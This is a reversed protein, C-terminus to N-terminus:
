RTGVGPLKRRGPLLLVLPLVLLSLLGLARSVDNYAHMAAQRNLLRNALALVMQPRLPGPVGAQVLLQQSRGAFAAYRTGFNSIHGVMDVRHEQMGRAVLTAVVAYGINSGVRRLLNYVSSAETMDARPMTSLAVTSLTVFMFPMGAGMILLAPVLQAFGAGLALRALLYYSWLILATGVAVLVRSDWRRYLWGVLPMVMLLTLARPALVLGAQLAPFGLLNQTFQPLVFGSGALAVGFVLAMASGVTLSRDKLLRLNVVPEEVVLEWAILGLGALVCLATMGLILRSDFWNDEQGRELVVQLTTLTVALLGIGVWDVKRIGRRLYPPDHVYAGVLLMGVICVPVNIYFIWPWGYSDTLWGGVIPGIAPALVVGMSYVAMAMGQEEHPFTERLIAQSLPILSGGGLGQIIRFTLMAGFTHATGCLMSGGTFVAFSALYLRKRGILTSWWGAMTVMVIEAISYATAVWTISSQDQGFSGMMHPLAVNVVSMDMVAMFAGFVVTGAVM